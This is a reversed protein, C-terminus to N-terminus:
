ARSSPSGILRSEHLERQADPALVPGVIRAPVLRV